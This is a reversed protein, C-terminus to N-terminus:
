REAEEIARQLARTVQGFVMDDRTSLLMVPRGRYRGVLDLQASCRRVHVTWIVWFALPVAVALLWPLLGGRLAFLPVVFLAEAAAIVIGPLAATHRPGRVRVMDALDAIDYRYGGASFHRSTVVIGNRRYFVLPPPGGTTTGSSSRRRCSM